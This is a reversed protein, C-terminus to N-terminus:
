KVYLASRFSYSATYLTPYSLYRSSVPNSFSYHGGRLVRYNSDRAEMTRESCNGALDYINKSNDGGVRGTLDVGLKRSTTRDYDEIYRCMADWQVGYILTSTVSNAQTKGNYMNQSLYVAGKTQLETENNNNDYAYVTVDSNIDSMSAGWPVYNYPATGRKIVVQQAGATPKTRLTATNVGAEYRGIYFGHNAIVNTRMTNYEQEETAYGTYTTGGSTYNFPETYNSSLTSSEFSERIFTEDSEVPIWVYENGISYGQSDVADTIVLGGEITNIGESIGVAFGAPIKATLEEETYTTTTEYITSFKEEEIGTINVEIEAQRGDEAIAKVTYTGNRTAIFESQVGTVEHTGNKATSLVTPGQYGEPKVNGYDIAM